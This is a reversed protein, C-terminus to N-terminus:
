LSLHDGAGFPRAARSAPESPCPSWRRPKDCLTKCTPSVQASMWATAFCSLFSTIPKVCLALARATAAPSLPMPSDQQTVGARAARDPDTEVFMVVRDGGWDDQIRTATPISRFIAKLKEAQGRLTYLDEGSVRVSVPVGVPPGTELKHVDICAGPIRDSLAAQLDPLLKLTDHKDSTEIVVQTYNLQQAEPPVSFWFRPGGGGVFTTLTKLVPQNTDERERKNVQQFRDAAQRIVKEAQSSTELTAAFSTGEPLWVDVYSLYQLDQLFFM